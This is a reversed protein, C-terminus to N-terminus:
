EEKRLYIQKWFDILQTFDREMKDLDLERGQTNEWLYGESAWYMERCMMQLDLGERFRAPDLKLLAANTKFDVHKQYSAQIAAAIEPDQEYYAKLVFAGLCPYQRMIQVKAKLGSYMIEFLDSQEYCGYQKLAQLTVEACHEWLYLYLEKKNRFYHFLLSKSIGAEAAIESVPSKRYSNQSFVRYGGNLIAQQKERPLSFFKENM